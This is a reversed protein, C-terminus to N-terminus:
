LNEYSLSVTSSFFTVFSLLSEKKFMGQSTFSGARGHYEYLSREAKSTVDTRAKRAKSNFFSIFFLTVINFLSSISCCQLDSIYRNGV